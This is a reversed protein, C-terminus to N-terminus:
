RGADGILRELHEARREREEHLERVVDESRDTYSLTGHAQLLEAFLEEIRSRECLATLEGRLFQQLSQGRRLAAEKLSQHVEGPIDRILMDPM